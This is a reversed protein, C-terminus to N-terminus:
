RFRSPMVGLKPHLTVTEAGRKVTVAPTAGITSYQVVAVLHDSDCVRDGAFSQVIDGVHFGVRDAPSGTIVENIRVGMCHDEVTSEFRVGLWTVPSRIADEGAVRMSQKLQERRMEDAVRQSEALMSLAMGGALGAMSCTAIIAALRGRDSTPVLTERKLISTSEVSQETSM